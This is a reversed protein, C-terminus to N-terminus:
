GKPTATAVVGSLWNDLRKQRRRCRRSGSCGTGLPRLSCSPLGADACSHICGMWQFDFENPSFLHWITYIHNLGDWSYSDVHIVKQLYIHQEVDVDANNPAGKVKTRPVFADWPPPRQWWCRPGDSWKGQLKGVNQVDARHFQSLNLMTTWRLSVLCAFFWAKSRTLGVM